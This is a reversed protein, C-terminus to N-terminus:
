FLIQLLAAASCSKLAPMHFISAHLHHVLAFLLLHFSNKNLSDKYSAMHM